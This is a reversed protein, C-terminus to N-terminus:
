TRNGLAVIRAHGRRRPHLDPEEIKAVPGVIVWQYAPRQAAVARLLDLDIREDIVGYFGILPHPLDPYEHPAWGPSNQNM